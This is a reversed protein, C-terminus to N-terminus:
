TKEYEAKVVRLTYLGVNDHRDTDVTNELFFLYKQKDTNVTYFSEHM